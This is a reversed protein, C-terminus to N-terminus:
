FSREYVWGKKEKKLYPKLASIEGVKQWHLRLKRKQLDIEGRVKGISGEAELKLSMPHWVAHWVRARALEIDAIKRMGPSSEFREMEVQSFLLLTWVRIRKVKGLEIGQVSIVAGELELGFATEHIREQSLVIGEKQLQQELLYYLERKPAFLILSVWLAAVILATKKVLHM